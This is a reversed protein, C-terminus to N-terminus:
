RGRARLLPLDLFRASPPRPMPRTPPPLHSTPALLQSSPAPPHPTPVRNQYSQTSSARHGLVSLQYSIASLRGGAVRRAGGGVRGGAVGVVMMGFGFGFGVPWVMNMYAGFPNPQGFTGYARYLRGGLIAFPEPGIRELAMLIGVAAEAAGAALVALLVFSRARPNAALSAALFMALGLEVWRAMEFGANLVEPARWAAAGLAAVFIGLPILCLGLGEGVGLRRGIVSRGGLGWSGAGLEWSGAGLEWSGGGLGGQRFRGLRRVAWGFASWALVLPTFTLAGAGLPLAVLGAFPVGLAAIALGLAPYIAVLAAIITVTVVALGELPVWALGAALALVALFLGTARAPIV